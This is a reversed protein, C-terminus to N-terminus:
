KFAGRDERVFIDRGNLDTDHLESIARDVDDASELEVIGCGKSRGASEGLVTASVVTFDASTFHDELNNSTVNYALNGVYVSCSSVGDDKYDRDRNNNNNNSSRRRAPSEDRSSQRCTV